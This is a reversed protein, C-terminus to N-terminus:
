GVADNCCGLFQGLFNSTPYWVMEAGCIEVEEFTEAGDQFFIGCVSVVDIM